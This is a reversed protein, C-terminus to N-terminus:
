CTRDITTLQITLDVYVFHLARKEEVTEDLVVENLSRPVTNLLTEMFGGWLTTDEKGM